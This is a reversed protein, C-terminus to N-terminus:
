CRGALVQRVPPERGGEREVSAEIKALWRVSVQAELIEDLEGFYRHRTEGHDSM